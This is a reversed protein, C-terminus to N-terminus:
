SNLPINKPKEGQALKITKDELDMAEMWTYWSAYMNHAHAIWVDKEWHKIIRWAKECINEVQIDGDPDKWIMYFVMDNLWGVVWAGGYGAQKNMAECMEHAYKQKHRSPAYINEGDHTAHIFKGDKTLAAVWWTSAHANDFMWPVVRSAMWETPMDHTHKTGSDKIQTM